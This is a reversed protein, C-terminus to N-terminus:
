VVVVALDSREELLEVAGARTGRGGLPTEDVLEDVVERDVGRDLLLDEVGNNAGLDEGNVSWTSSLRSSCWM